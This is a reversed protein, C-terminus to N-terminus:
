DDDLEDGESFDAFWDEGKNGQARIIPINAYNNRAHVIVAVGDADRLDHIVFQASASEVASVATLALLTVALAIRLKCLM